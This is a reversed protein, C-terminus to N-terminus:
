RTEDFACVNSVAITRQCRWLPVRGYQHPRRFCIFIDSISRFPASDHNFPKLFKLRFKEIENNIIRTLRLEGDKVM